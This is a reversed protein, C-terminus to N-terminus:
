FEITRIIFAEKEGELEIKCLYMVSAFLKSKGQLFASLINTVTEEDLPFDSIPDSVFTTEKSCYLKQVVTSEMKVNFTTLLMIFIFCMSNMLKERAM